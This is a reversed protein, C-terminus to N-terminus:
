YVNQRPTKPQSHCASIFAASALVPAPNHDKKQSAWARAHGGGRNNEKSSRLKFSLKLLRYLTISLSLRAM